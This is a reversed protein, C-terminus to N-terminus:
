RSAAQAAGDAVFHRSFSPYLVVSGAELKIKREGYQDLITLEGGDYDQPRSFFITMSIDTRLTNKESMLPNDVHEGYNMGDAYRVYYPPMLRAPWCAALYDPHRVLPPLVLENLQQYYADSADMQQNNKVRSAVDGATLKGNYFRAQEFIAHVQDLTENDLLSEITLLM